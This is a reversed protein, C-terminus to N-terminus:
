LFELRSLWPLSARTLSLPALGVLQNGARLILLRLDRSGSLHTWWTHLWEWTLFPSDAGSTHLLSNWQSRLATFGQVDDILEVELSATTAVEPPTFATVPM